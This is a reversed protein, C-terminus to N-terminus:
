RNADPYDYYLGKIHSHKRTERKLTINPMGLCECPSFIKLFTGTIDLVKGKIFDLTIHVKIQRYLYLLTIKQFYRKAFKPLNNYSFCSQRSKNLM